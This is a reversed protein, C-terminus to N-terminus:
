QMKEVIHIVMPLAKAWAEAGEEDIDRSCGQTMLEGLLKQLKILILERLNLCPRFHDMIKKGSLSTHKETVLDHICKNIMEEEEDVDVPFYRTECEVKAFSVTKRATSTKIPMDYCPNIKNNNKSGYMMMRALMDEEPQNTSIIIM